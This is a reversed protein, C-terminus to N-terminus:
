RHAKYGEATLASSSAVAQSISDGAAAAAATGAGGDAQVEETQLQRLEQLCILLVWFQFYTTV